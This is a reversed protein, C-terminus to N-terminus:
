GPRRFGNQALQDLYRRASAERVTGQAHLRTLAAQGETGMYTLTSIANFQRPFSMDDAVIAMGPTPPAADPPEQAVESLFATAEAREAQRLMLGIILARVTSERTGRYIRTLRQVIGPYRVQAPSSLAAGPKTLWREGVGSIILAARWAGDPSAATQQVSDLLANVKAPTPEMGTVRQASANAPAGLWICSILCFTWRHIPNCTNSM